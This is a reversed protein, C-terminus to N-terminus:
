RKKEEATENLANWEEYEFASYRGGLPSLSAELENLYEDSNYLKSIEWLDGLIGM